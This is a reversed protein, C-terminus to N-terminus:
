QRNICATISLLQTHRCPDHQLKLCGGHNPVMGMMNDKSLKIDFCFEVIGITPTDVM